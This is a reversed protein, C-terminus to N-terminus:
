SQILGFAAFGRSLPAVARTARAAVRAAPPPPAPEASPPPAVHVELSGIHLGQQADGIIESAGGRGRMGPSVPPPKLEVGESRPPIPARASAIRPTPGTSASANERATGAQPTDRGPQQPVMHTNGSQGSSSSSVQSRPALRQLVEAARPTESAVVPSQPMPPTALRSSGTPAQPLKPEAGATKGIQAATAESHRPAGRSAMLEGPSPILDDSAAVDRYGEASLPPGADPTRPAVPEPLGRTVEWRPGAAVFDTLADLPLADRPPIPRFFLRPPALTPHGRDAAGQRAIQQLYTPRAM